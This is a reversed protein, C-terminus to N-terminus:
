KNKSECLYKIVKIAIGKVIMNPVFDKKSLNRMKSILLVILIQKKLLQNDKDIWYIHYEMKWEIKKSDVLNKFKQFIDNQKGDMKFSKFYLHAAKDLDIKVNEVANEYILALNNMAKFINFNVAKEYLEIAKEINKEVGHLGNQYFTALIYMSNPNKLKAAKQFLEITKQPTKEIGTSERLYIWALNNM